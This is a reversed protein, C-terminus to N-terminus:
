IWFISHDLTSTFVDYICWVGAVTFQGLIMGLFFLRAKRLVRSGGVNTVLLKIAWAAFVTVWLVDMWYVSCIIFGVPHVPWWLLSRQALILGGMIAAGVGSWFFGAYNPPKSTTVYELGWRFTYKPGEIFFWGHLNAAGHRYGLWITACTATVYTLLAALLLLPVLGVGKKRALYMSHTASSMVTTRIDSMWSWSETLAGFGSAPIHAGGFTTGMFAYATMPAITVSVGCQAVVRTIGYFILISVGIFILTYRLPLGAKTLWVAMVMLSVALLTIAAAYSSPENLDYDAREEIRHRLVAALGWLIAALVGAVGAAVVLSVLLGANGWGMHWWCLFGVALGAIVSCAVWSRTEGLACTLVRALHRRSFYLSGAVFVLMAGMCQHAMIPFPAAGYLGLDETMELGYKKLLSRFVFAVLNLV